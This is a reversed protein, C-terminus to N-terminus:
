DAAFVKVTDSPRVGRAVERVEMEGAGFAAQLVRAAELPRTTSGCTYVDAAVYGIEPWTHVALHSEALIAVGTVGQPSYEHVHLGLLTAGAAAAAERVAAGVLAPDSTRGDCEWLEILLHTGMTDMM